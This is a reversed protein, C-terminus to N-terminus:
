RQRVTRLLLLWGVIFGVGGIPTIAGIFGPAGLALAFLSGSFLLISVIWIISVQAIHRGDSDDTPRYAFQITFLALTHIWFYFMGTDWTALRGTLELIPRLAHAGFAGIAVGCAGLIVAFRKMIRNRSLHMEM